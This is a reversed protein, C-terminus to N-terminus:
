LGTPMTANLGARGWGGTTNYYLNNSKNVSKSYKM